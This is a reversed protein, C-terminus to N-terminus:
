ARRVAPVAAIADLQIDSVAASARQALAEAMLVARIESVTPLIAPVEVAAIVNSVAEGTAAAAPPFPAREPEHLKVSVPELNAPAPVDIITLIIPVALSAVTQRDSVDSVALVAAVDPEVKTAATVPPICTPELVAAPVYSSATTAPPTRAAAPAPANPRFAGEVPVVVKITVPAPTPLTSLVTRAVKPRVEPSVVRHVDSVVTTHWAAPPRAPPVWGTMTLTATAPIPVAM